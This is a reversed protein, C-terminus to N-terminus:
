TVWDATGPPAPDAQLHAFTAPTATAPKGADFAVRVQVGRNAAEVLAAVVVVALPDSLRFDYIAVDLSTAATNAFDALRAAVTHAQGTPGGHATDRLFLVSIPSSSM